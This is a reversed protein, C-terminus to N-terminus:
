SWVEWGTGVVERGHGGCRGSGEVKMWTRAAWAGPTALQASGPSHPLVLFAKPSLLELGSLHPGPGLRNGVGRVKPPLPLLPVPALSVRPHLAPQARGKSGLSRAPWGLVGELM